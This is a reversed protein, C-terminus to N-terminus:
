SGPEEFLGLDVLADYIGEVTVPVAAPQDIPTAGFFGTRGTPVQYFDDVNLRFHAQQSAQLLTNAPEGDEPILPMYRVKVSGFAGSPVTGDTVFILKHGTTVQQYGWHGFTDIPPTGTALSPEIWLRDSGIPSVQGEILMAKPIAVPTIASDNDYNVSTIGTKNVLYLALAGIIGDPLYVTYTTSPRLPFDAAWTEPPALTVDGADGDMPAGATGGFRSLLRTRGGKIVWTPFVLAQVPSVIELDYIELSETGPNYNGYPTRTYMSWGYVGGSEDVDHVEVVCGHIRLHTGHGTAILSSGASHDPNNHILHLSDIQVDRCDAELMIFDQTCGEIHWNRGRVNHVSAMSIGRGFYIAASGDQHNVRFQDMTANEVFGLASAHCDTMSVGDMTLNRVNYLLFAGGPTKAPDLTAFELDGTIRVTDCFRTPDLKRIIASANPVFRRPAVDSQADYPEFASEWGGSGYEGVTLNYPSMRDLTIDNGSVDTVTAHAWWLAEAPDYPNQGLRVLVRDNAALTDPDDVHFVNDGASVDEDIVCDNLTVPFGDTNTLINHSNWTSEDAWVFRTGPEAYISVNPHLVIGGHWWPEDYDDNVTDVGIYYDGSKFYIEGGGAESIAIIALNIEETTTVPDLPDTLTPRINFANGLQLSLALLLEEFTPDGSGYDGALLEILDLREAVTDFLGSPNSGLETEVADIRNGLALDAADSDSENHDIDAQLAADAAELDARMQARDAASLSAYTTVADEIYEFRGRVTDHTGSPTTGLEAEIAEIADNANSHQEDHLVGPTDLEDGADDDPNEFADLGAPYSTPSM